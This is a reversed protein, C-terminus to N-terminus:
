LGLGGKSCVLDNDVTCGFFAVALTSFRPLLRRLKALSVPELCPILPVKSTSWAGFSLLKFGSHDFHWPTNSKSLYSLKDSQFM